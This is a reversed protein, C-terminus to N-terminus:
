SCSPVLESAPGSDCCRSMAGLQITAVGLIWRYDNVPDKTKSKTSRGTQNGNLSVLFCINGWFSDFVFFPNQALPSADWQSPFESIPLFENLECGPRKERKPSELTGPDSWPNQALYISSWGMGWPSARDSNKRFYVQNFWSKGTSNGVIYIVILNWLEM